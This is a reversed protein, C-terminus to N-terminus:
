LDLTVRAVCGQPGETVELGHYTAAKVEEARDEPRYVYGRVVAELRGPSPENLDFATGVFREADMLYILEQLWRILLRERNEASLQFRRAIISRTSRIKFAVAYLAQAATELLSLFNEARCEVQLDATHDLFIFSGM